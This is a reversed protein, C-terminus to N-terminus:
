KKSTAHLPHCVKNVERTFRKNLPFYSEQLTSFEDGSAPIQM